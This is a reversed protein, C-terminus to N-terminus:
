KNIEREPLSAEQQKEQILQDLNLKPSASAIIIQPKLTQMVAAKAALDAIVTGKTLKSDDKM